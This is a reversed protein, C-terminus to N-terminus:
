HVADERLVAQEGLRFRQDPLHQPVTRHRQAEGELRHAGPELHVERLGLIELRREEAEDARGLVHLFARPREELLTRGLELALSPMTFDGELSGRSARPRRTHRSREANLAWTTSPSTAPACAASAAAPARAFATATTSTGPAKSSGSAACAAAREPRK